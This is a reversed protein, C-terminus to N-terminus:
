MSILTQARIYPSWLKPDRSPYNVWSLVAHVLSTGSNVMDPRAGAPVAHRRHAQSARDGTQNQTDPVSSHTYSPASPRPGSQGKTPLALYARIAVSIWDAKDNSLNQPDSGTQWCSAFGGM